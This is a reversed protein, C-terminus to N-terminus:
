ARQGDPELGAIELQFMAMRQLRFSVRRSVVAFQRAPRNYNACCQLVAFVWIRLRADHVCSRASLATANKAGPQKIREGDNM